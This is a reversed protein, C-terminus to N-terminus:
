AAGSVPVITVADVAFLGMAALPVVEFPQHDIDLDCAPRRRRVIGLPAHDLYEAVFVVETDIDLDDNTLMMQRVLKWDFHQLLGLVKLSRNGRAFQGLAVIVADSGMTVM